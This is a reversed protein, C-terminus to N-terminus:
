ARGARECGTRPYNRVIYVAQRDVSRDIIARQIQSDIDGLDARIQALDRLQVVRDVYMSGATLTTERLSLLGTIGVIVTLLLVAGFGILLRARIGLRM